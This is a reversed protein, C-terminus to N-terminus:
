LTDDLTWTLTGSYSLGKEGQHGGVGLKINELSAAWDASAKQDTQRM